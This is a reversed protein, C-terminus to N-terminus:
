QFKLRLSLSSEDEAYMCGVFSNSADLVWPDLFSQLADMMGSISANSGGDSCDKNWNKVQQIGYQVRMTKTREDRRELTCVKTNHYTEVCCRGLPRIMVYEDKLIINYNYSRCPCYGPLLIYSSERESQSGVEFLYRGSPSAEIRTVLDKDLLDLASIFTQDFITNLRSIIDENLSQKLSAFIQEVLAMTSFSFLPPLEADQTEDM